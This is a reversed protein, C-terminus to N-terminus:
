FLEASGAGGSNQSTELAIALKRECWRLESALQGPHPADVVASRTSFYDLLDNYFPDESLKSAAGVLILKSEARTLAVNLRRRDRLARSWPNTSTFCYVVLPLQRGQFSDVTSSKRALLDMVTAEECRLLQRLLTAQLRFPTIVFAEEPMLGLEKLDRMLAVVVAAEYLNYASPPRGGFRAWAVEGFQGTDFWLIPSSLRNSGHLLRLRQRPQLRPIWVKGEVSPDSRLRGGYFHESSFGVISPHSRYQTDLMVKREPYRVTLYEFLSLGAIKRDSDSLRHLCRVVPPLQMHDGVLVFTRAFMAACVTLPITAMSSEDVIAVDFLPELWNLVGMDALM